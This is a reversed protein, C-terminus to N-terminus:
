SSAMKHTDSSGARVFSFVLTGSNSASKGRKAPLLLQEENKRLQEKERCLQEKERCLQMKGKCLQVKEKFLAGRDTIGLYQAPPGRSLVDGVTKIKKGTTEIKKEVAQIEEEVAEIRGKAGMQAEIGATASQEAPTAQTLHGDGEMDDAHVSAECM